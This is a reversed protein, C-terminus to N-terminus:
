DGNAERWSEFAERTAFTFTCADGGDGGGDAVPDTVYLHITTPNACHYEVEISAYARPMSTEKLWGAETALEEASRQFGRPADTTALLEEVSRQFGRAPAPTDMTALLEQASRQFGRQAVGKWDDLSPADEDEAATRAIM